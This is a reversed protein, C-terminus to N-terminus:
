EDRIEQQTDEKLEDINLINSIVIDRASEPYKEKRLLNRVIIRLKAKVNDRDQWDTYQHKKIESALDKALISIRGSEMDEDSIHLRLIKKITETEQEHIDSKSILTAAVVDVTSEIESEADIFSQEDIEQDEIWNAMILNCYDSAGIIDPFLSAHHVNMKRLHKICEPQYENKIYIKCIYAAFLAPLSYEDANVLEEKDNLSAQLQNEITEDYCVTFLGAQNVLRGHDDRKPELVNINSCDESEVFSKNLVYIARYTNDDISEYSPDQENFAFFLAVYPSHTWDILPTKLGYHQGVAWLEDWNTEDVLSPDSLRGRVAHRFFAHMKNAKKKTVKGDKSYPARGLTPSLQWDWRRHGRFILHTDARNFLSSDVLKVFDRWHEIRTVPIRERTFEDFFIFSSKDYVKIKDNEIKAIIEYIRGDNIEIKVTTQEDNYKLFISNNENIFRITKGSDIKEIKTARVWDISFEEELFEILKMSDNGPIEDWSFLYRKDEKESWIPIKEWCESLDMM